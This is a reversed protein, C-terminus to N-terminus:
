SVSLIVFIWGWTGSMAHKENGVSRGFSSSLQDVYGIKSQIELLEIRRQTNKDHELRDLIDRTLHETTSCQTATEIDRDEVLGHCHRVSEEWRRERIARSLAAIDTCHARRRPWPRVYEETETM